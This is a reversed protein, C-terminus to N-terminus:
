LATGAMSRYRSVDDPLLLPDKPPLSWGSVMPTKAPYGDALNFRTLTDRILKQQNIAIINSTADWEVEIGLTYNVPGLDRGPFVKLIEQVAQQPTGPPCFCNGDDVRTHLHVEEQAGEVTGKYTAPDTKYPLLNISQLGKSFTIWWQNPSQKLGYIPRM